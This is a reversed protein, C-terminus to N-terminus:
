AIQGSGIVQIRRKPRDNKGVEVEEIEKCFEFGEIIRGFVVHKGDLEPIPKLTISFQSGNTNPGANAMSLLGKRKHKIRFNEDDFRVGYISFGGTGDGVTIDGGQFLYGKAIRHIISGVYSLSPGREGTCFVRFNEVTRPVVDKFLEFVLRQPQEDEIRIDLYVQPNTPLPRSLFTYGTVKKEEYLDSNGFMKGFVKSERKQISKIKAQIKKQLTQVELNTPEITLATACDQSAQEIHLQSFEAQAKRFLVKVNQPQLLLAKNCYNVCSEWAELKLECMAANSYLAAKTTKVDIAHQTEGEARDDEIYSLAELYGETLAISYQGQRVLDNGKNKIENAKVLREEPTMDEKTFVVKDQFSILELEFKLVANSPIMPPYGKRGYAYVPACTLLAKEGLRM